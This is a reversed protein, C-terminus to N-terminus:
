YRAGSTKGLEYVNVLQDECVLKLFFDGVPIVKETTGKEQPSRRLVLFKVKHRYLYTLIDPRPFGKLIELRLRLYDQPLHTAYGNIIPVGHFTALYMWEATSQYDVALSGPAVPFCAIGYGEPTQTRVHELWVRHQQVNPVTATGTVPLRVELLAILAVLALLTGAVIRAPRVKFRHWCMQYLGYLGVAAFIVVIIHVYVAMRFVNRVKEFVPILETLTWWPQWNGIHLNPGMSLFFALTGMALLFSAWRRTTIHKLGIIVGVMALIAKIWGPSLMKWSAQTPAIDILQRGYAQLYDGPNASQDAVWQRDWQAGYATVAKQIPLMYPLTILMAVCMALLWYPWDRFKILDRWLTPAAGVLLMVLFLSQHFCTVASIGVALGLVTGRWYTPKQCLREIATWSWLIGWLPILQVVGLRWSVFPLMVMAMGGWLAFCVNLGYLKLLRQSFVGNLVLAILIYFNYALVSSGTIWIVPAVLVTTPQPENTAFVNPSPFFIPADWYGGFLGAGREANWWTIWVSSLPVTAAPEAGIPIQSRPASWVPRMLWLALLLYIVFGVLAWRNARIWESVRGHRMHSM